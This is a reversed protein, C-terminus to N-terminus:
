KTAELATMRAITQPCGPCGHDFCSARFTGIHIMRRTADWALADVHDCTLAQTPTEGPHRRRWVGIQESEARFILQRTRDADMALAERHDRAVLEGTASRSEKDRFGHGLRWASVQGNMGLAEAHAKEIQDACWARGAATLVWEGWNPMEALGRFMLAERTRYDKRWQTRLKYPMHRPDAGALQWMQGQMTPSLATITTTM